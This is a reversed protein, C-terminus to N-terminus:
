RRAFLSALFGQTVRAAVSFLIEVDAATLYNDHRFDIDLEVFDLPADFVDDVDDGDSHQDAFRADRLNKCVGTLVGEEKLHFVGGGDGRHSM